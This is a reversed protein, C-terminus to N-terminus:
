RASTRGATRSILPPEPRQRSRAVARPILVVATVVAAAATLANTVLDSFGPPSLLCGLCSLAIVWDRRERRANPALCALGWILFWPYVVPALVATTLLAFGITHALPRTRFTVLLYAVVCGAAALAAIRGGTGLDDFSAARVIPSLLDGALSAPAYPTHGRTITTLNGIWALGHRVSLVAAALCAAVTVADRAALRWDIGHGGACHAVVIALVAILAVPELAGAACALVVAVFWRRQQTSVLAGLLLAAVLGEIHAASVVYLLLLPNLLTLALAQVRHSGGLEAALIGIAILCLVGLARYLLVAVLPNGASITVALHQGFTALPGATSHASRWTPDIAAIIPKDGLVSPGFLYPSRSSRSILGRGVYAYVDGNLIPPGFTLPLAWAAALGWLARERWHRGRVARLTLLWCGCLALVGALLLIAPLLQSHDQYERRLLGFWGSLPIVARGTGLQGGAYVCLASAVFGAAALGPLPRALVHRRASSLGHLTIEALDSMAPNTRQVADGPLDECV